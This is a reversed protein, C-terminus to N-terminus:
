GDSKFMEITAGCRQCFVIEILIPDENDGESAVAMTRYRVEEILSALCHPCTPARTAPPENSLQSAVESAWETGVAQREGKTGAMVQLVRQRVLTLDAGMGVLVTAAVGKGERLVGLLLHEPGVYSHGLELAERLSFDLVNKSRPTFPPSGSPATGVMGITEEVEHRVAEFSIDLSELAKAAVSESESILGLLIHETGIYSHNLLRAEEQALVLV